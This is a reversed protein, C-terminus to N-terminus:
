VIRRVHLCDTVKKLMLYSKVHASLVRMEMKERSNNKDVSDDLKLRSRVEPINKEVRPM